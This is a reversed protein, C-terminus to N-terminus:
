RPLRGPEGCTALNQDLSPTTLVVDRSAAAPRVSEVAAHVISALDVARQELRLKGTTIRSVELLDEILRAQAQANREVKELARDAGGPPLAGARLLRTWGLMANLPTRLEHSLTALFEDKLRTAEGLGAGGKQTQKLM